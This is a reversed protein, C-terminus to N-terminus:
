IGRGGDLEFAAGTIMAAADSALYRAAEAVEEPTALRGLPITPVFRREAEAEDEGFGFKVVM